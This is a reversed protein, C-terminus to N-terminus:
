GRKMYNYFSLFGFLTALTFSIFSIAPTGLIFSGETLFLGATGALILSGIVLGLFILNSSIEITKNIRDLEHVEHKWKFDPSNFKKLAQRTQRPLTYLLASSDKALIAMSKLIRKQNYRSKLVESAFENSYALLDIDEGIARGMGEISLISKFLLMLESPLRLGHKSSVKSSDLLLKGIQFESFNLGHYPAFLSQLDHMLTDADINYSQPSLELFEHALQEYDEGAIAILISSISDRSKQSLYGVMGFDILGIKQNPLIFFNGAHLDGHFIGDQFIMKLFSRLGIQVVDEPSINEQDFATPDSLRRGQLEELILVKENSYKSYVKPIVVHPDDAFNKRFRGINNAEIIFNTEQELYGAYEEIMRSVGIVKLEPLYNEALQGLSYLINIDEKISAYIGPRQIKLVVDEGTVLKARHVQAISAAGLPVEEITSFIDDIDEEYQESLHKRLTKFDVAPVQDNLKQLEQIFDDPMIDPRTALMQGFKIWTPGLQEFSMRLREATSYKESISSGSVKEFIFKGLQLQEAINQFGHKAFVAVIHRMRNASMLTSGLWRNQTLMAM